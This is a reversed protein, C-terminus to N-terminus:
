EGDDMPPPGYDFESATGPSFEANVEAQEADSEGDAAPPTLLARYAMPDGSGLAHRVTAM